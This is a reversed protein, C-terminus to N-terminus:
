NLRIETLVKGESALCMARWKGNNEDAMVTFTHDWFIPRRFYIDASFSGPEGQKWLEALLYHVGMGGGIIPARFGAKNAADMEYHISNGESSYAKVQEPTLTHESLPLLGDMSDIVPAPREGAGRQDAKDPDPKLSKRPVAVVKEGAASEFWSETAVTRGRPVPAVERIFGKAILPEDLRAPRFQQLQVLMNVNGEASIGNRIGFQIGAAIFFSPDVSDGFVAPDIGCATLKEVQFDTAISIEDPTFEYGTEPERWEINQDM